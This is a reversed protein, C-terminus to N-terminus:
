VTTSWNLDDEGVFLNMIEKKMPKTEVLISDDNVKEKEEHNLSDKLLWNNPLEDARHLWSWLSVKGMDATLVLFMNDHGVAEPFGVFYRSLESSLAHLYDRWLSLLVVSWLIADSTHHQYRSNSENIGGASNEMRIVQDGYSQPYIDCIKTSIAVWQHKCGYCEYSYPM